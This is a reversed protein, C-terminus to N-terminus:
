RSYILIHPNQGFLSIELSQDLRLRGFTVLDPLSTLLAAKGAPHLVREIEACVSGYLDRLTGDAQVQRGWPLNSAIFDVSSAALPLGRADLRLLRVTMGSAHANRCAADLASADIEGAVVCLGEVAAEISITGAGCCPDLFLAGPWPDLLRLMAAAVSPKLSGARHVQKYAREHLARASLRLGLHATEHDIFVRLNLDTEDEGGYRWGLRASLAEGLATKVEDASYNRRGVFNVTVSFSPRAPLERVHGVVRAGREPDLDRSWARMLDLATRWAPLDQWVALRLFVDDATRLRLLGETGGEVTFDVRRYGSELVRCGPFSSVEAACVSELGRAAIAFFTEM